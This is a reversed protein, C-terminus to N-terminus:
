YKPRISTPILMPVRAQYIRYDHGFRAVLDREELMTGLVIWGTWLLNFLVRDATLDPCSWIMTISCLYLPHRVWRYPGCTKLVDQTITPPRTGKRIPGVGFSDFSGLSVIGWMLGVISLMFTARFVLRLAGDASYTTYSSTQWFVVLVILVISSAITYSAGFYKEGILGASWRQYANRIMFSHQFFFAFSLSADLALTVSEELRLKVLGLSGYFVFMTTLLLSVGGLFVTANVICKDLMPLPSKMHESATLQADM